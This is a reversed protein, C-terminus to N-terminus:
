AERAITGRADQALNVLGELVRGARPTHRAPVLCEQALNLPNDLPDAGCLNLPHEPRAAALGVGLTRLASLLM